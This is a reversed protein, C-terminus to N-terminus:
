YTAWGNPMGSTLTTAAVSASAMEVHSAIALRGIIYAYVVLCSICSDPLGVLRRHKGRGTRTGLNSIVDFRPM